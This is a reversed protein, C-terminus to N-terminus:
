RAPSGTAGPDHTAIAAASRQQSATHQQSGTQWVWYDGVGGAFVLGLMALAIVLPKLARWERQESRDM